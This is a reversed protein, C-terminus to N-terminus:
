QPPFVRWRAADISRRLYPNVIMRDSVLDVKRGFAAEFAEILGIYERWGLGGRAEDWAVLLDVDSREPDFRDTLVSGFVDLQRVGYERCLERVRALVPESLLPNSTVTDM